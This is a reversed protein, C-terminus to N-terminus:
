EAAWPNGFIRMKVVWSFFTTSMKVEDCFLEGRSKSFINWFQMFSYGKGYMCKWTTPWLIYISLLFSKSLFLHGSKHRRKHREDVSVARCFQCRNCSFWRQFKLLLCTVWHWVSSFFSAKHINFYSSFFIVICLCIPRDLTLVILTSWANRGRFFKRLLSSATQIWFGRKRKLIWYEVQM